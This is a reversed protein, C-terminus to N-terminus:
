SSKGGKKMSNVLVMSYRKRFEIDKGRCVELDCSYELDRKANNVMVYVFPNFWHMSRALLLLLKYWLDGRKRHAEEHAIIIDLDDKNYERDPILIITRFFGLLMPSELGEALYVPTKLVEGEFPRKKIRICFIIYNGVSLALSVLAGLGWLFFIASEFDIIPAYNGSNEEGNINNKYEENVEEIGLPIFRDTRLAVVRPSNELKIPASKWETEFPLILRVSIILWIFYRWKISYRKDIAKGFILVALIFLTGIISAKVLGM